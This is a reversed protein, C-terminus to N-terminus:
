AIRWIRFDKKGRIRRTKFQRTTSKNWRSMITRASQIKDASVVFSQGVELQDFPYIHGVQLPIGSEIAITM